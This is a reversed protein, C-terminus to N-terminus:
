GGNKLADKDKKALTLAYSSETMRKLEEDPVDSTLYVTNWHTKNMHYAATVGEFAKRLFDAEMPDCKLNVIDAGDHEMLLAFWKRSHKHRIVWTSFNEEFPQDTLVNTLARCFDLYQQKTM